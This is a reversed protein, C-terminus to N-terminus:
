QNNNLKTLQTKVYEGYARCAKIAAEKYTISKLGHKHFIGNVIKIEKATEIVQEPENYEIKIFWRRNVLEDEPIKYCLMWDAKTMQRGARVYVGPYDFDRRLEYLPEKGDM